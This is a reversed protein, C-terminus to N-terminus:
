AGRAELIREVLVPKGGRIKSARIISHRFRAYPRLDSLPQSLLEDKAMADFRDWLVNDADSIVIDLPPPPPLDSAPKPKLKPKAQSAKEIKSDKVKVYTVSGLVIGELLDGQQSYIAAEILPFRPDSPKVEIPHNNITNIVFRDQQLSWLVRNNMSEMMNSFPNDGWCIQSLTGRRSTKQM